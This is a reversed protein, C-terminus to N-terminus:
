GSRRMDELAARLRDDALLDTLQTLKTQTDLEMAREAPSHVDSKHIPGLPPEEAGADDGQPIPGITGGRLPPLPESSEDPIDDLVGLSSLPEPGPAPMAATPEEEVAPPEALPEAPPEALAEALPEAPPEGAPLPESFPDGVEGAAIGSPLQEFLSRLDAQATVIEDGVQQLGAQFTEFQSQMRQEVRAGLQDLSAALRFIAEQGASDERPAQQQQQQEILAQQGHAMSQIRDQVLGLSEVLETHARALRDLSQRSHVQSAAVQELLGDDHGRVHRAQQVQARRVRGFALVMLGAVALTAPHLSFAGLSAAVQAAGEHFPGAIWLGLGGLLGLAGTLQLVAAEVGGRVPVSTRARGGQSSPGSETQPGDLEEVHLEDRKRSPKRSAM